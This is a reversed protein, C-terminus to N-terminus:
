YLFLFYFLTPFNTLSQPTYFVITLSNNTGSMTQGLNITFIRGLYLLAKHIRCSAINFFERISENFKPFESHRDSFNSCVRRRLERMCFDTLGEIQLNVVGNMVPRIKAFTQREITYGQM